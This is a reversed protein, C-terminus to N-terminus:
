LPHSPLPATTVVPPSWVPLFATRPLLVVIREALFLDKFAALV